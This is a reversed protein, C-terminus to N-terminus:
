EVTLDAPPSSASRNENWEALILLLVAGFLMAVFAASGAPGDTVAHSDLTHHFWFFDTFPSHDADEFASLIIDLDPLMAWMGSLIANAGNQTTRRYLGTALLLM